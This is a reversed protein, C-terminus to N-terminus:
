CWTILSNKWFNTLVKPPNGYVNELNLYAIWVNLKEGEERYNITQLARCCHCCLGIFLWYVVNINQLSVQAERVMVEFNMLCLYSEFREAIARAKDVDALQVLFAMYKIWVLSSNPSTRVLAEFEDVTEPAQDGKLRKEEAATIEAESCTVIFFHCVILFYGMIM